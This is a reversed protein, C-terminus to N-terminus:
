VDNIVFILMGGGGKLTKLYFGNGEALCTCTKEVRSSAHGAQPTQLASSEEGSRISSM